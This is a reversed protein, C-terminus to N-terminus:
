PKYPKFCITQLSINHLVEVSKSQHLKNYLSNYYWLAEM